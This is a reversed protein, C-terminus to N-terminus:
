SLSPANNNFISDNRQDWISWCGTIIIEMLFKMRCREKAEAIMDCISLDYNWEMGLAWWFSMSFSCEFFLHMTDEEPFEECLVCDAFEIHFNKKKMMDKTNLRGLLLLWDFLKQIPINCTKWISTITKHTTHEGILMKYVKKTSYYLTGGNLSWDDNEESFQVNQIEEYLTHLQQHAMVSLPLHFLDYITENNVYHVSAMNQEKDKAFSFLQPM